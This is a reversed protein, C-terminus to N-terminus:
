ERLGQNTLWKKVSVRTRDRDTGLRAIRVSPHSLTPQPLAM